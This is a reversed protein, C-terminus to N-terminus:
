RGLSCLLPPLLPLRWIRPDLSASAPAAADGPPSGGAPAEHAPATAAAAGAAAAVFRPQVLDWLQALLSTRAPAKLSGGVRVGNKVATAAAGFLHLRQRARTAAVYLLRGGELRERERDLAGLWRHVPDQEAGTAAVAGLV